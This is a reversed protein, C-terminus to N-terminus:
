ANVDEEVEDNTEPEVLARKNALYCINQYPCYECSKSISQNKELPLPKILYEGQNIKTVVDQVKVHLEQYLQEKEYVTFYRKENGGRFRGNDNIQIGRLFASNDFARVVQEEELVIGDLRSLQRLGDKQDLRSYKGLVIPQHFFGVVKIQNPNTQETLYGYLILQIDIGQDFEAKSFGTTGTKYDLVIAQKQQQYDRTMLRDITGVLQFRSDAELPMQIRYELAENAFQSQNIHDKLIVTIEQLRQKIADKVWRQFEDKRHSLSRFETSLTPEMSSFVQQLYDHVAIGTDMAVHPINPDLGLRYSLLYHFPCHHFLEISTASLSISKPLLRKNTTPHLGKFQPNYSRILPSFLPHFLQYNWEERQFITKQYRAFAYDLKASKLSPYTNKFTTQTYNRESFLRSPRNNTGNTSLPVYYIALPNNQIWWNLNQSQHRVETELSPLQLRQRQIESLHFPDVNSPPFLEETASQIHYFLESSGMPISSTFGISDNPCDMRVTWQNMLFMLMERDLFVDEPYSQLQAEVFRYLPNTQFRNIVELLEDRSANSQLKQILAIGIPHQSWSLTQDHLSIGYLHALSQYRHFSKPSAHVIQIRKPSIGQDLQKAVQQLTAHIQEDGDKCLTVAAQHTEERQPLSIRKLSQFALDVSADAVLATTERNILPMDPYFTQKSLSEKVGEWEPFRDMLLTSDRQALWLFPTMAQASYPSIHHQKMWVYYDMGWKAQFIYDAKIQFPVIVQLEKAESLIELFLWQPLIFLHYEPYEQLTQIWSKM